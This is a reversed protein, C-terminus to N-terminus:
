PISPNLSSQNGDLLASRVCLHNVELVEVDAASVTQGTVATQEAAVGAAPEGGVGAFIHEAAGNQCLAVKVYPGSEADDAVGTIVSINGNFKFTHFVALDAGFGTHLRCAVDDFM